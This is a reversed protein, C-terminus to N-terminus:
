IAFGCVDILFVTNRNWYTEFLVQMSQDINHGFRKFWLMTFAYVAVLVQKVYPVKGSGHSGPFSVHGVYHKLILVIVKAKM